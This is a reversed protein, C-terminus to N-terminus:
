TISSTLSSSENVKVAGFDLVGIAEGMKEQVESAAVVPGLNQDELNQKKLCSTNLSLILLSLLAVLMNKM